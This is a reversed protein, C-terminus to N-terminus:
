LADIDSVIAAFFPPAQPLEKDLSFVFHRAQESDLPPAADFGSRPYFFETQSNKRTPYFVGSVRTAGRMKALRLAQLLLVDEVGRSLARCSLLFTDIVTQEPAHKLICVGVIGFDGFKDLLQVHIVESDDAQVFQHIDADSYRRTTLNFQNTKQTLQAVRAVSNADAFRIVLQMAMSHYYSNLDTSASQLQRREAEARLMRGRSRDEQSVTLTDFLGSSALLQRIQYLRERTFHIVAVEPLAQRVLEIEFPSDDMFVMSDLGINLENALERINSPKDQWNIRWASLHQRKLVCEPHQDLVEFVSEENNKSCLALIIGRHYLELIQQQLERYVSGPAVLGLKIGAVGEEGVIGGWLTNDCDLVLCKKNKGVRARIYKCEEQVIEAYAALTFPARWLHWNRADFFHKAGVRAMLRGMDIYYANAVTSITQRVTQNLRHVTSGQGHSTQDDFIGLAPDIPPLFGHWVIMASSNGRLAHIIQSCQNSVREVEAQVREESLANFNRALDWSIGELHQFLLIVATDHDYLTPSAALAEQMITDFEGVSVQANLGLQWAAYRLYTVLPELMINRLIAIRLVPLAALDASQLSKAIESFTCSSLLM